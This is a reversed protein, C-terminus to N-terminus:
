LLNKKKVIKLKKVVYIATFACKMTKGALSLDHTTPICVCVRESSIEEGNDYQPGEQNGYKQASLNGMYQFYNFSSKTETNSDGINPTQVMESDQVTNPLCIHSNHEDLAMTQDYNTKDNVNM